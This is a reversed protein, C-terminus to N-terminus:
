PKIAVAALLDGSHQSIKERCNGLFMTLGARRQGAEFTWYPGYAVTPDSEYQSTYYIGYATSSLRGSM